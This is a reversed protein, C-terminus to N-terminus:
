AEVLFDSLREKVMAQREAAPFRLRPRATLHPVRFVDFCEALKMLYLLEEKSRLDFRAFRKRGEAFDADSIAAEAFDIWPSNKQSRDFGSGVHLPSKRRDRVAEPIEGPYLSWLSRLAAKGQPAGNVDGILDGAGLGLAYTAIEADLFPERAELGFRMSCRDLRQLNTRHMDLLCQDRVFAGVEDSDAFALELPAYGAFLEDAGEGSLAVRYGDEAIRECVLSTCLADRVVSPEFTEATAVVKGIRSETEGDWGFSVRKLDFGTEEAYLAAYRYDPASEEGLFYGPIDPRIQRAYHAVLTSDIGGSFMLACPLDPPLRRHVAAALLRDLKRPDHAIRPRAPGGPAAAFKLVANRTLLHGPPLLLADGQPTAALLPRMESSFLYRAGAQILYLPKVGFPDRAALFEGNAADLAVFAYMGNLRELLQPGWVRLGSAIVETDSATRFAVGKAELERRLDAHNYIEGNFSVLIRGDFSAQPQVAREADVIRLRRTGLAIGNLPSVVPDDIDGRHALGKLLRRVTAEADDWGIAAAIGCM